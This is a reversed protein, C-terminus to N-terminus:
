CQGSPISLVEGTRMFSHDGCFKSIVSAVAAIAPILPINAARWGSSQRHTLFASQLDPLPSSGLDCEFALHYVCVCVCM